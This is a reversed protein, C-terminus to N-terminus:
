ARQNIRKSITANKYYVDETVEKGFWDPVEFALAEEESPFEVEVVFLGENEGRYVDYEAVYNGVPIRYRTKEVPKEGCGDLLSLAEDESLEREKEERCLGTGSKETLIYVGDILRVRKEPDYSIYWQCVCAGHLNTVDPKNAVIFKRETEM